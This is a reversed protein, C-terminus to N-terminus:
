NVVRCTQHSPVRSGHSLSFLMSMGPLGQGRLDQGHPDPFRLVNPRLSATGARDYEEGCAGHHTTGDCTLYRGLYTHTVTVKLLATSIEFRQLYYTLISVCM